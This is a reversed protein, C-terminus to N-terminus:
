APQRKHLFAVRKERSHEKEQTSMMLTTRERQMTPPATKKQFGKRQYASESKPKRINLLAGRTVSVARWRPSSGQRCLSAPAPGGSRCWGGPGPPQRGEPSRAPAERGKMMLGLGEKELRLPTKAPDLCQEEKEARVCGCVNGM